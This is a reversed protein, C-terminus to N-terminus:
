EACVCSEDNNLQEFFVPKCFKRSMNFLLFPFSKWQNEVTSRNWPQTCNYVEIIEFCISTRLSVQNEEGTSVKNHFKTSTSTSINTQEAFLHWWFIIKEIQIWTSRIQRFIFGAAIYFLRYISTKIKEAFRCFYKNSEYVKTTLWM